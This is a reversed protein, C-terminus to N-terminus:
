NELKAWPSSARLGALSISSGSQAGGKILTCLSKKRDTESIM